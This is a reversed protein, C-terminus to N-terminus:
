KLLNLQGNITTPPLLIGCFLNSPFQPKMVFIMTSLVNNIRYFRFSIL